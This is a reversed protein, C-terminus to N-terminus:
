ETKSETPLPTSASPFSTAKLPSAKPRSRQRWRMQLNQHFNTLDGKFQRSRFNYIWPNWASSAMFLWWAFHSFLYHHYFRYLTSNLVINITLPITSTLFLVVMLIMTTLVYRNDKSYQKSAKMKFTRWEKAVHLQEKVFNKIALTSFTVVSIGLIFFIIFQWHYIVYRVEGQGYWTAGTPLKEFTLWQASLRGDDHAAFWLANVFSTIWSSTITLVTRGYSFYDKYKLYRSTIVFREASLVLLMLLSVTSTIHLLASQFIIFGSATRFSHSTHNMWTTNEIENLDHALKM